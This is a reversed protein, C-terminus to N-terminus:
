KALRANIGAAPLLSDLEVGKFVCLADKSVFLPADDSQLAELIFKPLRVRRAAPAGDFDGAAFEGQIDVRDDDCDSIVRIGQNRGGGFPKLHVLPPVDRAWAFRWAAQTWPSM